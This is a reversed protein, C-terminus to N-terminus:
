SVTMSRARRSAIRRIFSSARTCPYSAIMHTPNHAQSLGPMEPLTVAIVHNLAAERRRLDTFHRRELTQGVGYGVVLLGVSLGIQILAEM